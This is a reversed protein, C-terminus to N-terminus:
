AAAIHGRILNGALAGPAEAPEALASPRSLVPRLWKPKGQPTRERRASVLRHRNAPAGRGNHFGRLTNGAPHLAKGPRRPAGAPRCLLRGALISQLAGIATEDLMVTKCGKLAVAMHTQDNVYRDYEAAKKAEYVLYAAEALSLAKFAGHRALTALAYPAGTGVAAFGPNTHETRRNCPSIVYLHAGKADTGAVLFATQSELYRQIKQYVAL